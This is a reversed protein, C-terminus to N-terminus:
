ATSLLRKYRKVVSSIAGFSLKTIINFTPFIVLINKVQKRRERAQLVEKGSVVLCSGM